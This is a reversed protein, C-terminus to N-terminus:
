IGVVEMNESKKKTDLWKEVKETNRFFNEIELYEKGRENNGRMFEDAFVNDIVTKLQEATFGDDLRAKIHKTKKETKKRAKGLSSIKEHYYNWVDDAQPVYINENKDNEGNKDNKNPTLAKNVSQQNKTLAKNTDNNAVDTHLQYKDWNTLTILRGTKTSENTLFGLKEFKFLATRVNQKTIGKGSKKAISDISTVFQGPKSKFKEGKWIWEKERHNAMMLLTILITKQEPTSDQWIAKETLCRYLKIWGQM